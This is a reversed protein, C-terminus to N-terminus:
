RDAACVAENVLPTSTDPDSNDNVDFDQCIIREVQRSNNVEPGPCDTNYGRSWIVHLNNVQQEAGDAPKLLQIDILACVFKSPLTTNGGANYDYRLKDDDGPTISANTLAGWTYSPSAVVYDTSGTDACSIVLGGLPIGAQFNRLDNAKTEAAQMLAACERGANAVYYAQNMERSISSIILQKLIINSLTLGVILVVSAVLLAYLLVFGRDKTSQHLPLM